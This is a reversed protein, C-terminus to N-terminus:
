TGSYVYLTCTTDYRMAKEMSFCKKYLSADTLNKIMSDGFFNLKINLYLQHNDLVKRSITENGKNPTFPTKFTFFLFLYLVFM